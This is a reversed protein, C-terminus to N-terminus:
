MLRPEPLTTDVYERFHLESGDLFRIRGRVYGVTAGGPQEQLDIAVALGAQLAQALVGQLTAIYDLFSM